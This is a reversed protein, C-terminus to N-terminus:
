HHLLGRAVRYEITALFLVVIIEFLLYAWGIATILKLHLVALVLSICCYAINMLAIGRLLLAANIKHSYYGYVDYVFFILPFIALTYLVPRPIGILLQFRVLVFGLMFTSLLAGFGDIIFLRRPYEMLETIVKGLM